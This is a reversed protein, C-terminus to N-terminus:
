QVSWAADAPVHVNNLQLWHYGEFPRGLGFCLLIEGCGDLRRQLDRVVLADPTRLDRSYLRVDTVPLSVGDRWALRLREQQNVFIRVPSDTRVVVLSCRGKGPSTVLNNGKRVLDPGIPSLDDHAARRLASIFEEGDLSSIHRMAALAFRTDEIEPPSRRPATRGLDLVRGLGVMGGNSALLRSSLSGSSVPRVRKGTDLDVGAMCIRGGQMRTLDTILVKM